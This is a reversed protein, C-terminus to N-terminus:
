MLYNEFYELDKLLDNLMTIYVSSSSDKNLHFIIKKNIRLKLINFFQKLNLDYNIFDELTKSLFYVLDNRFNEIDIDSIIDIIEENDHNEIEELETILNPFGIARKIRSEKFFKQLYQNSRCSVLIITKNEFIKLQYESIFVKYEFERTITGSLLSSSGHGLFIILDDNPINRIIEFFDDYNERSIFRYVIIKEFCNSFVGELFDTTEDKPYLIHIKKNM